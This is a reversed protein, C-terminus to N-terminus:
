RISGGRNWKWGKDPHSTSDMADSDGQWADDPAKLRVPDGSDNSDDMELRGGADEPFVAGVESLLCDRLTIVAGADDDVEAARDLAHFTSLRVEVPGEDSWLGTPAFGSYCSVLTGANWIRYNRSNGIAVCGELRVDTTKLDYGGDQNRIARCRVFRVERTGEEIVFGDGNKYSSKQLPMLNNRSTCDEFLIRLNPTRTGNALFGFPLSETLREWAEDGESCDATCHRFVVDECGDELRFGHKTYRALDCREVVLGRCDSLYFGHRIRRMDLDDFVLRERAKGGKVPAAVVGMACDSIRLSRVVVDHVGPAITLATLGKEPSSEDWTGSIVPLGGGTDRGEIRTPQAETGSVAIEWTADRYVGSGLLIRDGAELDGERLKTRAATADLADEWSTGTGNGSGEPLVHWDRAPLPENGGLLLLLILCSRATM